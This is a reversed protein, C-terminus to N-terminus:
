LSGFFMSCQSYLPMCGIRICRVGSRHYKRYSPLCWASSLSLRVLAINTRQDANDTFAFWNVVAVVASFLFLFLIHHNHQNSLFRSNSHSRSDIQFKEALEYLPHGIIAVPRRVLIWKLCCCCCFFSYTIASFWIADSSSYWNTPISQTSIAVCDITISLWIFPRTMECILPSICVSTFHSRIHIRLHFTSLQTPKPM